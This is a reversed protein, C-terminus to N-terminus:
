SSFLEPNNLINQLKKKRRKEHVTLKDNKSLLVELETLYFHKYADNIKM